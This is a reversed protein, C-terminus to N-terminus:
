DRELLACGFGDRGHGNGNYLMLRAGDVDVVCPHCIMESDWGSASPAIGVESDKRIWALGDASEAYGIRYTIPGRSRISYWMRYLLGDRLVWPRGLAYDSAEPVLCTEGPTWAVGDHSRAHGIVTNYRVGQDDTTWHTCSWYWMRYGDAERLVCPASRSYPQEATRDLIPVPLHREFSSGDDSTALGGFLMQPVRECRQWGIYYLRLRGGDRVACSPTVGCDDFAGLEGIGLVPESTVAVIRDPRAPELDVRGIRGFRHDDLSAFYVHLQGGHWDATPLFAYGNKQWWSRREPVYVPGLKRWKM